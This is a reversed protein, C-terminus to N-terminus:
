KIRVVARGNEHLDKMFREDVAQKKTPQNNSTVQPVFHSPATYFSEHFRKREEAERRIQEEKVSQQYGDKYAQYEGAKRIHNYTADLIIGAAFAVVLAFTNM